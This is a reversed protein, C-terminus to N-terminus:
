PEGDESDDTDDSFKVTTVNGTDVEDDDADDTPGGTVPDTPYLETQNPDGGNPKTGPKWASLVKLARTDRLEGDAAKKRGDGVCEYKVMVVGTDGIEPPDELKINASRFGIYAGGTDVHDDGTDIKDLDNGSPLGAPKDKVEAM